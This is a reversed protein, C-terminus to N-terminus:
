REIKRALVKQGIGLLRAARSQDGGCHELMERIITQEFREVQTAFDLPLGEPGLMARPSKAMEAGNRGINYVSLKHVLTRRPMALLEAARSQNGACRALADEIIEAEFEAVRTKLDSEILVEGTVEEAYKVAPKAKERRRLRDPLENPTILGGGALVVAREVVNRLERVNGPWDHEMLMEVAEASIGRVHCGNDANARIIFQESLAGIEDKRDRLPPLKVTVANLRFYLDRRFTGADCMAELNRHTAAVIRVDIEVESSAGIPLVRKTDLVRLLSAQSPLALDGIEDLLLVGEHAEEFLGKQDREAGTFAGRRHGFLLSEILQGPIAGCNISRFPKSKRNGSRHLARAIVEKGTGTEGLILVPVKSNKFQEITSLVEVMMPDRVVPADEEEDRSLESHHAISIKGPDARHLAGRSVELLEEASKASEPFSGLGCRLGEGCTLLKEALAMAEPRDTGPLLVEVTNPGYLGIPHAGGLLAGAARCWSVFETEQGNPAEIMLLSVKRRQAFSRGVERQVLTLFLDHNCLGISAVELRPTRRLTVSVPGLTVEDRPSIQARAVTEGNVQTGNRSELDEVWV